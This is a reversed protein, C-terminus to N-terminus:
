KQWRCDMYKNSKCAIIMRIYIIYNFILFLLISVITSGNMFKLEWNKKRIWRLSKLKSPLLFFFHFIYFNLLTFFLFSIIDNWIMYVLIVQYNKAHRTTIGLFPHCHIITNFVFNIFLRLKYKNLKKEPTEFEVIAQLGKIYISV